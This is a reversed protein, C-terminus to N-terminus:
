CWAGRRTLTDMPDKCYKTKITRGLASEGVATSTLAEALGEWTPLPLGRRLWEKLMERLCEGPDKNCRANIADLVSVQLGLRLGLNYWKTSAPYLAELVVM